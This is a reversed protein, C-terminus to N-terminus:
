DSAQSTNFRLLILSNASFFNPHFVEEWLRSTNDIVPRWHHLSFLMKDNVRRMFMLWLLHKNNKFISYGWM